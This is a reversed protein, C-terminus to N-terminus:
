WGSGSSSQFISVYLDSRYTCSVRAERTGGTARPLLEDLLEKEEKRQQRRDAAAAVRVDARRCLCLSLASAFTEAELANCLGGGEPSAATASGKASGTVNPLSHCM